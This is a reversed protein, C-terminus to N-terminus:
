NVGKEKSNEILINKFLLLIAILGLIQCLISTLIFYNKKIEKGKLDKILIEIASDFNDMKEQFLSGVSNLDEGFISLQENLKTTEEYLLTFYEMELHNIFETRFKLPIRSGKFDNMKKFFNEGFDVFNDGLLFLDSLKKELKRETPDENSYNLNAMPTDILSARIDLIGTIINTYNDMIYNKMRFTTYEKMGSPGFKMVINKKIHFHKIFDPDTELRVLARYPLSNIHLYYAYNSKIIDAFSLISRFASSFDEYKKEKLSMDLKLDRVKDETQIVQQDFFFSLLTFISAIIICYVSKNSIKGRRM